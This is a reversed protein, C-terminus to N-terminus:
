FAPWLKNQTEILLLYRYFYTENLSNVYFRSQRLRLLEDVHAKKMESSSIVLITMKKPRESRQKTSSPITGVWLDM